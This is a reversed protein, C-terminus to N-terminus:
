LNHRMAQKRTAYFHIGAACAMKADSFPSTPFATMGEVYAFRHDWGALGVKLPARQPRGPKALELRVVKARSARMKDVPKGTVESALTICRGGNAIWCVKADGPIELKVLYFPGAKFFGNRPKGVAAPALVKKWGIM